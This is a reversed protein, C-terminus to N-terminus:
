VCPFKHGMQFSQRRGEPYKESRAQEQVAPSIYFTIIDPKQRTKQKIQHTPLEQLEDAVNGRTVRAELPPLHPLNLLKTSNDM